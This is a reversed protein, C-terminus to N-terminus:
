FYGPLALDFEPHGYHVAPDIVLAGQAPDPGCLEPLRTIIREVDRALAIPLHGADIAAIMRPWLRREAFFEPWSAL